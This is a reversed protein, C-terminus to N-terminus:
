LGYSMHTMSLVSFMKSFLFFVIWIVLPENIVLIGGATPYYLVTICQRVGYKLTRRGSDYPTPLGDVDIQNPKM